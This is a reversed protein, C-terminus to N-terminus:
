PDKTSVHFYQAGVKAACNSAEEFSVVPQLDTKTGVLVILCKAQDGDKILKVYTEVASFTARSTTSFFILYTSKGTCWTDRLGPYMGGTDLINISINELEGRGNPIAITKTYNDEVTHDHDM